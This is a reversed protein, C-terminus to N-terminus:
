FCWMMLVMWVVVSVTLIPKLRSFVTRMKRQRWSGAARIKRIAMYAALGGNGGEDGDGGLFDGRM